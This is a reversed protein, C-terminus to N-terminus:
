QTSMKGNKGFFPKSLTKTYKHKTDTTTNGAPEQPSPSETRGACAFSGAAIEDYITTARPVQLTHALRKPDHTPLTIDNGEEAKDEQSDKGDAM